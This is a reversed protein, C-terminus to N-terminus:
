KGLISLVMSQTGSKTEELTSFSKDTVNGPTGLLDIASFSRDNTNEVLDSAKKEKAQVNRNHAYGAKFNSWRSGKDEGTLEAQRAKMAARKIGSRIALAHGTKEAILGAGAGAVLGAGAGIAIKKRRNAKLEDYRAQEATTLRGARAKAKLAKREQAEKGVSGAILGGALGLAGGAAGGVYMSKATDSTLASKSSGYANKGAVKIKDLANYESDEASYMSELESDAVLDAFDDYAEELGEESDGYADENEAYFEAFGDSFQDLEDEMDEESYMEEEDEDEETFEVFDAYAEEINDGYIDYTESYFDEFSVEDENSYMEDELEETFEVFDAYAEEINDGYIDATDAYFDGFADDEASYKRASAALKRGGTFGIRAAGFKDGWKEGEQNILAQKIGSNLGTRSSAYGVVAGVGAGVGAGKVISMKLQKYEANEAATRKDGKARLAQLRKRNKIAMITAGGVAGVGTGILASVGDQKQFNKKGFSKIKDMASPKVEDAYLEEQEELIESFDAYAEEINGEYLDENESYFEEFLENIESYEDESGEDEAAFAEFDAYASEIDDGYIDETEAYYAAFQDAYLEEESHFNQNM